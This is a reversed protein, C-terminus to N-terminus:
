AFIEGGVVLKKTCKFKESFFHPCYEDIKIWKKYGVVLAFLMPYWFGTQLGFLYEFWDIMMLWFVGVFFWILFFDM